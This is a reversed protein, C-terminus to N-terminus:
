RRRKARQEVVRGRRIRAEMARRATELDFRLHAKPGDGLRMVGLEVAHAYAYDVSVKLADALQKANLLQYATPGRTPIRWLQSALTYIDGGRPKGDRTECGYCAWGQEPTPYVHLSPKEDEHFPCEIKGERDPTKGTLLRVYHAPEIRQLPDQDRVRTQARVGRQSLELAPLGALIEGLDHRSDSHHLLEVPQPKGKHNWTGPVRLIRTADACRVDAGLKM